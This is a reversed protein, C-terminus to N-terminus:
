GGTLAFSACCEGQTFSVDPGKISVLTRGQPPDVVFIGGGLGNHGKPHAPTYYNHIILYAYSPGVSRGPATPTSWSIGQGDGDMDSLGLQQCQFGTSFAEAIWVSDDPGLLTTLSSSQLLSATSLQASFGHTLNTMTLSAPAVADTQPNFECQSGFDSANFGPLLTGIRSLRSFYGVQFTTSFRYGNSTTEVWTWSRKFPPALATKTSAPQATSSGAAALLAALALSLAGRRM